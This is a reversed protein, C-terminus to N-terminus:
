TDAGVQLPFAHRCHAWEAPPADDVLLEPKPLFAVFCSEIGLSSAVERAYAAGGRSWLFLECGRARSARVFEVVQPVAIRSPGSSRVLTDDVDVYIVQADMAM